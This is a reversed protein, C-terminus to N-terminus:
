ESLKRIIKEITEQTLGIDRLYCIAAKQLNHYYYKEELEHMWKEPYKRKVLRYEETEEEIDYFNRYSIMYDKIIEERSAGMLMELIAVMYGTRDKGRACHILYPPDHKAMFSFARALAESNGKNQYNWTLQESFVDGASYIQKYYSDQMGDQELAQKLDEENYALNIVTHIGNEDLLKDTIFGKESNSCPAVSRYLTSEGIAGATVSRFNCYSTDSEYDARNKNVALNNVHELAKAGGPEKLNIQYESGETIGATEALSEGKITLILQQGDETFYAYAYGDSLYSDKRSLLPLDNEYKQYTFRLTDGIRIGNAELEDAFIDLIVDGNESIHAIGPITSPKKDWIAYLTSDKGVSIIDGPYYKIGSDDAQTNWHSFVTKDDPPIIETEDQVSRIIHTTEGKQLISSNFVGGEGGNADYYLMVADESFGKGLCEERIRIFSILERYYENYNDIILEPNISGYIDWRIANMVASARLNENLQDIFTYLQDFLGDKKIEAWKERVAKRFDGHRYAANYVTPIRNEGLNYYLSNAWWIKPDGYDLTFRIIHDGFTRDMDWMPSFHLKNKNESKVLYTSSYGADIDNGLERIIYMSVLSDLDYYDTYHKGFENNGDASYLARNAENVLRSIYEVEKQSAYEPSKIVVCQGNNTVFGCREEDYRLEMDFELLYGGSINEPNEPMEVWKASGKIAGSLIEGDHGSGKRPLLNLNGNLGENEIDLDNINIRNEGIEVKECVIYNGLYQGNIYLDIHRYESTYYLGLSEALYWAIPNKLFSPDAYNALLVWKRGPKMGLFDTPDKFKISYPKKVYLWTANGRGSLQQIDLDHILEGHDYAKIEGPEKNEKAEHIYELSKSQTSIFVSPINASYVIHVRQESEAEGQRSFTHEGETTLEPIHDGNKIPQGDIMLGFSDDHWIRIKSEDTDAPLFLYYSGDQQFLSVADIDDEEGGFPHVSIGSLWDNDTEREAIVPFFACLVIVIFFLLIRKKIM